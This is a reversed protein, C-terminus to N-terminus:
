ELSISSLSIEEFADTVTKFADFNKVLSNRFVTRSSLSSKHPALTRNVESFYREVESSSPAANLILRASKSLMPFHGCYSEWFKRCLAEM